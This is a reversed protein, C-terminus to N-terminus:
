IQQLSERSTSPGTTPWLIGVGPSLYAMIFFLQGIFLISSSPWRMQSAPHKTGERVADVEETDGIDAPHATFLGHRLTHRSRHIMRVTSTRELWM